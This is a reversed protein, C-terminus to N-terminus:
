NAAAKLKAVAELTQKWQKPHRTKLTFPLSPDSFFGLVDQRVKADVAAQNKAALKIALNAYAEDAMAYEGPRTPAGTDFDLNAMGRHAQGSEQLLRRYENLSRVFSAEFLSETQPTPAKFSLAKLPGVKPLIAILFALIRTGPGSKQFKQSWHKRYSAESLDFIFDQRKISGGTKKLEQKKLKWAVRTMEPILRGVAYRYSGLALDLNPFLDNLDLSYTDHFARNLLDTAVNFGIFERFEDPAYRHRSVQMVDFGFEVRIHDVPDQEYTVVPGYKTALKPYQLPVAKNVAVSHGQTDAAYHALSGLAFAYENLNQSDRVLNEVFEGSRVYHVLDTFLRNGFPYYGMDQIICGAYAYSHAERLADKDSNPFRALLLPKISNDWASDIIAEHTLVSYSRLVPAALLCLGILKPLIGYM